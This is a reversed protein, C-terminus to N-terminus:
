LKLKNKEYNTKDVNKQYHNDNLISDDM